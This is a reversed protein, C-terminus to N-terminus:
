EKTKSLSKISSLPKFVIGDMTKIKLIPGDVDVYRCCIRESSGDIYDIECVSHCPANERIGGILCAVVFVICIIALLFDVIDRM